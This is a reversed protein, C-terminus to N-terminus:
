SLMHTRSVGRDAEALNPSSTMSALRLLSLRAAFNGIDTGEDVSILINSDPSLAIRAINKRNEFAFTKSKNSFAPEPAYTLNINQSEHPPPSM